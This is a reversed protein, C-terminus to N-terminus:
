GEGYRDDMHTAINHNAPPAGDPLEEKTPFLFRLHQRRCVQTGCGELDPPHERTSLQETFPRKICNQSQSYRHPQACGQATQGEAKSACRFSITGSATWKPESEEHARALEGRGVSALANGGRWDSLASGSTMMAKLSVSGDTVIFATHSLSHTYTHPEDPVHATQAIVNGSDHAPAEYRTKELMLLNRATLLVLKPDRFSSRM